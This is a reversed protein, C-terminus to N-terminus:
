NSAEDSVKSNSFSGSKCYKLSTFALYPDLSKKTRVYVGLSLKNAGLVILFRVFRFFSKTFKPKEIISNKYIKEFM